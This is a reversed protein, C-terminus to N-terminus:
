ARSSWAWPSSQQCYWRGVLKPTHWWPRKQWRGHQPPMNWPRDMSWTGGRGWQGASSGITRIASIRYGMDSIKNGIVLMCFIAEFIALHNKEGNYINNFNWQKLTKKFEVKTTKKCLVGTKIFDVKCFLNKHMKSWCFTRNIIIKAAHNFFM